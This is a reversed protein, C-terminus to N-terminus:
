RDVARAIGAWLQPALTQAYTATLHHNDRSVPIGGIAAPCRSTTCVYRTLTLLRIHGGSRRVAAIQPDTYRFATSRPTGCSTWSAKSGHHRALCTNRETVPHPADRIVVMPIGTRLAPRWASVLGNTMYAIRSQGRPTRMVEAAFGSVVVADYKGHHKKVYTTVRHAWTSCSREAARTREKPVAYSWQCGGKLFAVYTLRGEAALRDLARLYMRAHSDGVLLVRPVGQRPKQVSRCPVLRADGRKLFCPAKAWDRAAARPSLV